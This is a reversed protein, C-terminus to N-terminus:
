KAAPEWITAVWKQGDATQIVVTVQEPSAPYYGGNVKDIIIWSPTEYPPVVPKPKLPAAAVAVPLAIALAWRGWTPLYNRVTM